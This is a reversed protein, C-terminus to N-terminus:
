SNENINEQLKDVCQQVYDLGMIKLLMSLLSPVILILITVIVRKGFRNGAKKLAEKDNNFIVKAFDFSTLVILIIPVSIYILKFVNEKLFTLFDGSFIAQCEPELNQNFTPLSLMYSSVFTEKANEIPKGEFSYSSGNNIIYKPYKPQTGLIISEYNSMNSITIENNGIYAKLNNGSQKLTIKTNTSTSIYSALTANDDANDIEGTYVANADDENTVQSILLTSSTWGMKEELKLYTPCKSTDSIKDKMVIEGYRSLNLNGSTSFQDASGDNYMSFGFTGKQNSAAFIMDYKYSCTRLFKKNSDSESDDDSDDDNSNTDNYIKSFASDHTLAVNEYESDRSFSIRYRKSITGNAMNKNKETIFYLTPCTLNDDSDKLQNLNVKPLESVCNISTNSCRIDSKHFKDSFEDSYGNSFDAESTRIIRGAMVPNPIEKSHYKIQIIITAPEYLDWFKWWSTNKVQFDKDGNDLPAYHYYCYAWEEANADISFFLFFAIFVIFYKLMVKCKM